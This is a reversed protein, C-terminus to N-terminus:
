RSNMETGHSTLLTTLVSMRNLLELLLLSETKKLEAPTITRDLARQQQTYELSSDGEFPYHMIYPDPALPFLTLDIEEGCSATAFDDEPIQDYWKRSSGIVVVGKQILSHGSTSALAAVSTGIYSPDSTTAHPWYLPYGLKAPQDPGSPVVLSTSAKRKVPAKSKKALVLNPQAADVEDLTPLPVPTGEAVPITTNNQGELCRIVSRTLGSPVLGPGSLFGEKMERLRTLYVCLREM